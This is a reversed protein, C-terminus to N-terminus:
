ILVPPARAGAGAYIGATHGANDFVSLLRGGSLVPLPLAPSAEPTALALVASFSCPAAQGKGKRQDEPNSPQEHGSADLTVTQFGEATSPACIVITLDGSSSRGPMFGAPILAHFLVALLAIWVALVRADHRLDTWLSSM